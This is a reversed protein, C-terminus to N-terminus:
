AKSSRKFIKSSFCLSILIQILIGFSSISWELLFTEDNLFSPSLFNFANCVLSRRSQHPSFVVNYLILILSLLLHSVHLFISDTFCKRISQELYESCLFVRMSSTLYRIGLVFTVESKHKFPDGLNLMSVFLLSAVM